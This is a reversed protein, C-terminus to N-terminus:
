AHLEEQEQETTVIIKSCLRNQTRLSPWVRHTHSCAKHSRAKGAIPSQVHCSARPCLQPCAVLVDRYARRGGDRAPSPGFSQGRVEHKRLTGSGPLARQWVGM